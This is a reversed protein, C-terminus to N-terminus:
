PWFSIGTHPDTEEKAEARVIELIESLGRDAILDSVFRKFATREGEVVTWVHVLNGDQYCNRDAYLRVVRRHRLRTYIAM